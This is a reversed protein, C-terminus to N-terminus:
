WIARRREGGEGWIEEWYHEHGSYAYLNNHPRHTDSIDGQGHHIYHTQSTGRAMYYTIPRLRKEEGASSKDIRTLQHSVENGEVTSVATLCKILWTGRCHWLSVTILWVFLSDIKHTFTYSSWCVTKIWETYKLCGKLLTYRTLQKCGSSECPAKVWLTSWAKM